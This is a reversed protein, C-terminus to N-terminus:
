NHCQVGDLAIPFHLYLEVYKLRPMLHLQNVAEPRASKAEPYFDGSGEQIRIQIGSVIYLHHDTLRWNAM